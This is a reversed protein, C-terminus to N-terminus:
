DPSVTCSLHPLKYHLLQPMIWAKAEETTDFFEIGVSKGYIRYAKERLSLGPLPSTSGQPRVIGIHKLRSQSLILALVETTWKIDDISLDNLRISEHIWLTLEHDHIVQILHQLGKRYQQSEIPKTWKSYLLKKSTDFGYLLYDLENKM